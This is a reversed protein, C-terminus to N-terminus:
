FNYLLSLSTPTAKIEVTELAIVISVICILSSTLAIITKTGNQKELDKTSLKLKKFNDITETLNSSQQFNDIAYLGSLLSLLIFNINPQITKPENTKPKYAFPGIVTPETLTVGKYILSSAVKPDYPLEEIKLIDNPAVSARAGNYNFIVAFDNKSVIKVNLYITGDKMHINDAFASLTFLCLAFILTKM